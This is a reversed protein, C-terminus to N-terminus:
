YTVTMPKKLVDKREPGMEEISRVTISMKAIDVMEDLNLYRLDTLGDWMVNGFGHRGLRFNDVNALQLETFTSLM